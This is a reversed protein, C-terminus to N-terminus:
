LPHGKTIVCGSYGPWRILCTLDTKLQIDRGICFNEIREESLVRWRKAERKKVVSLALAM